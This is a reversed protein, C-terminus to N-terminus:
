EEVLEFRRWQWLAAVRTRRFLVRVDTYREYQIQGWIDDLVMARDLSGRAEAITGLAGWWLRVRDILEFEVRAIEFTEADIWVQGIAKNLARDIDRRVPLDGGRPRFSLRHSARNRWTEQGVLTFVYREVLEENFVIENEDEEPEIEGDRVRHLEERFGSEREAELVLEEENLPRGNFTLRRGYPTGDIPFVEYDGQDSEEVEGDGNFRRLERTALSRLRSEFHQEENWAVRKLARRILTQATEDTAPAGIAAELGWSSLLALILLSLVRRMDTSQGLRGLWAVAAQKADSILCMTEM